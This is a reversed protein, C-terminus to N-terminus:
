EPESRQEIRLLEAGADLLKLRTLRDAGVVVFVRLLLPEEDQGTRRRKSVRLSGIPESRPIDHAERTARRAGMLNAVVGLLGHTHEHIRGDLVRGRGDIGVAVLDRDPGAVALVVQDDM